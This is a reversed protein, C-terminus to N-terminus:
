YKIKLSSSNIYSLSLLKVKCPIKLQQLEDMDQNKRPIVNEPDSRTEPITNNFQNFLLAIDPPPKQPM